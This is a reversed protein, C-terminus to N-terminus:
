YTNVYQLWLSNYSLYLIAHVAKVWKGMPWKGSVYFQLNRMRRSHRSRKGGGGIEFSVALYRDRCADRCTRWARATICTPIAQRHHRPFRERCERRMRVRLNAYRALPGHVFHVGNRLRCKWICNRSHFFIYKSQFEMSTQKKHDLQYCALMPKSLPKTVFLRCAMIRVLVSGTWERMYTASPSSSNVEM